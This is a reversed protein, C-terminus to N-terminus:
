EYSALTAQPIMTELKKVQSDLLIKQDTSIDDILEGDQTFQPHVMVEVDNLVKKNREFDVLVDNISGFYKVRALGNRMINFNYLNRYVSNVKNTDAGINRALRVASINNKKALKIAKKGIAWETHYHHHSDIHTPVINNELLRDLQAQFERYIIEKEKRNLYFLTDRKMLHTGRSPLGASSIIM